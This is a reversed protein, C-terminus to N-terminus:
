RKREQLMHWRDRRPLARLSSRIGRRMMRPFMKWADIQLSRLQCNQAQHLRAWFAVCGLSFTPGPLPRQSGFGFSFKCDVHMEAVRTM